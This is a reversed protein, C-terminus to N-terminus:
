RRGGDDDAMIIVAASAPPLDIGGDTSKWQPDDVLRYRNLPQGDDLAVQITVPNDLDYNAVVMGRQGNDANVFVSFPHHARGGATASGGVTDRFEGDWFWARLERRLEDMQKGYNLSDPFDEVMGKFNYPEYSMVYRYLLCQNIMNRDNFGSIATMIQAGPRLYRAVPLHGEKWTRFYSLHYVEFEWDYCAEGAFLYQDAARKLLRRPLLRDNGYVHAGYRHGHDAAFCQLAPGHHQSEDFLIGDPNLSVTKDFEAECVELYREDLFCMPVLRKTNLDLMQTMTQYQYGSHTQYDGYPDKVAMERYKDRFERTGRDAWTFKSFLVVRVGMAQISSIAEALEAPTGLRPDPTHSPNGQDQGGDNWGVLQIAAIGHRACQRGVEVLDAFRMRLEDEPSNIHIQQWAHPECIWRPPSSPSMWGERCRKYIDAGAHWDGRFPELVIPTLRRTEGPAIHPVHVAAFRVAVPKGAIEDADPVHSNMASDYGPYLEACFNVLEVEAAGVGAYLGEAEGRLLCFPSMPTTAILQIPRDNGYYGVTNDFQPRLNRQVPESYGLSFSRLMGAKGPPPRLDGLYPCHVSEVYYDSRNEISTTWVAQDDDLKVGITVKVPLRGAHESVVGDWIFTASRQDSGVEVSSLHQKEGYVPNNRRGSTHWDAMPRTPILLRFSLGLQPRDLINWGAELGRLGILAGSDGDFELQLKSNRLVIAGM